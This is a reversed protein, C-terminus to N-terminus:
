GNKWSKALTEINDYEICRKFKSTRKPNISYKSKTTGRRQREQDRVTDITNKEKSVRSLLNNGTGDLNPM